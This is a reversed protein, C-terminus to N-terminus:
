RAMKSFVPLAMAIVRGSPMKWSTFRPKSVREPKLRSSSSPRMRQVSKKVSSFRSSIILCRASRQLSPTRWFLKSSRMFFRRPSSTGTTPLQAAIESECSVMMEKTSIVACFRTSSASLCLRVVRARAWRM